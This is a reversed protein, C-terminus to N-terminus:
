LLDENILRSFNITYIQADKNNYQLIRKDTTWVWSEGKIWRPATYFIYARRSTLKRKFIIKPEKEALDLVYAAGNEGGLILIKEYGIQIACQGREFIKYIEDNIKLMQWGLEEDYMDLKEILRSLIVGQIEGSIAYIFRENLICSATISKHENLDSIIFWKNQAIDYKECSSLREETLIYDSGGLCYIFKDYVNLLAHDYRKHNMDAKRMQKLKGKFGEKNIEKITMKYTDAYARGDLFGGCMFFYSKVQVINPGGWFHNYGGRYISGTGKINSILFTYLASLKPYYVLLLKETFLPMVIFDNYDCIKIQASNLM